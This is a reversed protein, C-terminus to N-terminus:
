AVQEDEPAEDGEELAGDGEEGLHEEDGEGHHEEEGEEHHDDPHKHDKQSKLRAEEQRRVQDALAEKELYAFERKHKAMVDKITKQSQTKQEVFKQRLKIREEDNKCETLLTQRGKEESEIKAVLKLMEENQTM